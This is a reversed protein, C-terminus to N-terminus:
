EDSSTCRCTKAVVQLILPGKLLCKADAVRIRRDREMKAVKVVRQSQITLRHRKNKLNQNQHQRSRTRNRNRPQKRVKSVEASQEKQASDETKPVEEKQQSEESKPDEQPVEESKSVEQPEEDPKSVEASTDKKTTDGSVEVQSAMEPGSSEDSKPEDQPTQAKNEDMQREEPMDVQPSPDPAADVKQSPDPVPETFPQSTAPSAAAQENPIPAAFSTMSGMLLVSLVLSYPKQILM